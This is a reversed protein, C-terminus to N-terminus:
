IEIFKNVIYISLVNFENKNSKKFDKVYMLCIYVVLM